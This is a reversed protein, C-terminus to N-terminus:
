GSDLTKRLNSSEYRFDGKTTYHSKREQRKRGVRSTPSTPTSSSANNHQVKYPWYRM